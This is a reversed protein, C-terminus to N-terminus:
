IKVEKSSKDFREMINGVVEEDHRDTKECVM